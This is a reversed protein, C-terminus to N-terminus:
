FNLSKDPNDIGVGVEAVAALAEEKEEGPVVPEVGAVALTAKTARGAVAEAVASVEKAAAVDAEPDVEGIPKQRPSPKM